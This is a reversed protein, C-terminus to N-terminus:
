SGFLGKFTNNNIISCLIVDCDKSASLSVVSTSETNIKLM